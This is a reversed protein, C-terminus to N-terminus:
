MAFYNMQREAPAQNDLFTINRIMDKFVYCEDYSVMYISIRRLDKCLIEVRGHKSKEKDASASTHVEVSSILGLPMRFYDQVRSKALTDLASKM